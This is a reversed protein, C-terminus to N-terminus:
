HAEGGGISHSRLHIRIRRYSPSAEKLTQSTHVKLLVAKGEGGGGFFFFILFGRTARSVAACHETFVFINYALKAM